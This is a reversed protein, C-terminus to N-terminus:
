CPGLDFIVNTVVQKTLQQEQDKNINVNEYKIVEWPAAGLPDDETGSKPLGPDDVQWSVLFTVFM